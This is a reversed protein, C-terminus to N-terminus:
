LTANIAELWVARETEYLWNNDLLTARVDKLISYIESEPYPWIKLDYWVTAKEFRVAEVQAPISVNSGLYLTVMEDIAYNSPFNDELLSRYRM